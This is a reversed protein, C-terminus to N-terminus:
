AVSLEGAVSVLNEFIKQGMAMMHPDKRNSQAREPHPMLGLILGTSDCIGAIDGHSGNPNEPYSSASYRFVVRNEAELAALSEPTTVFKGEGHAIPYVVENDLGRLFQCPSKKNVKLKSWRCEFRGSDNFSLSASRQKSVNLLGLDLLIQFGNCIGLVPKKAAIFADLQPKLHFRLKNALVRGAAIDDAYTFGGPIVLLDYHDLRHTEHEPNLLRNVHVRIAAAGAKALAFETEHDCNSGPGRLVLAKLKEM